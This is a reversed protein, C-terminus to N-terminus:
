YAASLIARADDESVPRPNNVVNRNDPAMRAVADVDELSVGCAGLESPLGLRVLLAAV